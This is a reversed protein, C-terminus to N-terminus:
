YLFWTLKGMSVHMIFLHTIFFPFFIGEITQFNILEPNTKMLFELVIRNGSAAALHLYSEGKLNCRFLDLNDCNKFLSGDFESNKLAVHFPTNGEQDQINGTSFDFNILLRFLSNDFKECYMYPNFMKMGFWCKKSEAAFHLPCKNEFDVVNLLISPSQLLLRIVHNLKKQAALHIPTLGEITQSNVDTLPNKVLIKVILEDNLKIAHHLPSYGLQDSLNTDINKKGLLKLIFNRSKDYNDKFAAILPTEHNKNRINIDLSEFCLLLDFIEKNYKKISYHLPTNGEYDIPNLDIRPNNILLNMIKRSDYIAAYHLLTQDKNNRINVDINPFMNFIQLSNVKVALHAVTDSKKMTTLSQDCEKELLMKIAFLNNNLIALHLPTYGSRSYQNVDLKSDNLLTTFIQDLNRKICYAVPTIESNTNINIRKDKLLIFFNQISDTMLSLTLPTIHLNDNVNIGDLSLMYKLIKPTGYLAAYHIPRLTCSVVFNIDFYPHNTILKIMKLSKHDIAQFLPTKGYNDLINVDIFKLQLLYELIDYQYFRIALHLPNNNTKANNVELPFNTFLYHLIEINGSSIAYYLLDQPLNLANHLNSEEIMIEILWQALRNHFFYIAIRKTDTFSVDNEKLIRIIENNGGAVAYQSTTTIKNNKQYENSLPNRAIYAKSQNSEIFIDPSMPPLLFRNNDFEIVDKKINVKENQIEKESKSEEEESIEIIQNNDNDDVYIIDDVNNSNDDYEIDSDDIFITNNENYTDRGDNSNVINNITQPKQSFQTNNNITLSNIEKKPNEDDSSSFTSTSTSTSSVIEIVEDNKNNNNNAVSYNNQNGILRSMSIKLSVNRLEAKNLILFKFIKKSSHFSAFQLFSPFDNMQLNMDFLSIKCTGNIEELQVANQFNIIDDFKIFYEISNKSYQNKIMKQFPKCNSKLLSRIEHKIKQDNITQLISNFLGKTKKEIEPLFWLFLQYVLSVSSHELYFSLCHIVHPLVQTEALIGKQILLRYFFLHSPTFSDINKLSKMLCNSVNINSKSLVECLSSFLEAKEPRFRMVNILSYVLTKCSLNSMHFFSNNLFCYTQEQNEESMDILYDHLEILNTVKQIFNHDRFFSGNEDM